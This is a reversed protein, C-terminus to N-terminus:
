VTVKATSLTVTATKWLPSFHVVAPVSLVTSEHKPRNKSKLVTWNLYVGHLLLFVYSISWWRVLFLCFSFMVQELTSHTPCFFSDFHSSVAEQMVEGGHICWVFVCLGYRVSTFSSSHGLSASIVTVFSLMECARVGGVGLVCGRRMRQIRLVFCHMLCLLAKNRVLVRMWSRICFSTHLNTKRYSERGLLACENGGCCSSLRWLWVSWCGAIADKDSSRVENLM